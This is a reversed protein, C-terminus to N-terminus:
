PAAPYLRARQNLGELRHFFDVIRVRNLLGPVFVPFLFSVEGGTAVTVGVANNNRWGIDGAAQVHPVRELVRDHIRENTIVAHLAIRGQPLGARVMGTDGRLHHDLTPTAFGTLERLETYSVGDPAACLLEFIMIRRPHSLATM